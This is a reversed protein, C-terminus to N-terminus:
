VDRLYYCLASTSGLSCLSVSLHMNIDEFIRAFIRHEFGWLQFRSSYLTILALACIHVSNLAMSSSEHETQTQLCCAPKVQTTSIM